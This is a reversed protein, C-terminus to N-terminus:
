GTTLPAAAGSRPGATGPVEATAAEVAAWGSREARLALLARHGGRVGFLRKAFLLYAAVALNIILVVIKFWSVGKSLEYVELPVFGMTAVFTLYEAWRKAYWLGVMEFSELTAYGVAILAVQYLHSPKILFVHHVRGFLSTLADPRGGTLSNMIRQYDYNLNNRDHLFVLVAIVLGALVLVHLARDIAILRLVYRDRLQPGRLPLEIEDRGPVRERTPTTPPTVPFWGDCRLCRHWRVGDTERVLLADDSTVTAADTGVLHHGAFACSILEYRTDVKRRVFWEKACGTAEDRAL